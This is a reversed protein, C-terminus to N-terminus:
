VRIDRYIRIFESRVGAAGPNDVLGHDATPMRDEDLVAIRDRTLLSGVVMDDVALMDIFRRSRACNSLRTVTAALM